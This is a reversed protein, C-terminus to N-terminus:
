QVTFDLVFYEIVIKGITGSDSKQFHSQLIDVAEKMIRSSKVVQPLFMKGDGFLVGVRNM